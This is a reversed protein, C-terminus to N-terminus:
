AVILAVGSYIAKPPDCTVAKVKSCQQRAPAISKQTAQSAYLVTTVFRLWWSGRGGFKLGLDGVPIACPPLPSATPFAAQLKRWWTPILFLM